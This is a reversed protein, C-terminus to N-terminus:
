LHNKIRKEFISLLILGLVFVSLFEGLGVTLMMFPISDGTGYGYALVFPIIVANSIIPPLAALYKNKRLLYTGVAGILTAIPGVIIDLIVAGSLLNALFCGITVGVIAPPFFMPLLCLAESFRLQIVGSDLGLLRALFTLVVYLAAIISGQCLFKIRQRTKTIQKM